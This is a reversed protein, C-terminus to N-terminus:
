LQGVTEVKLIAKKEIDGQQISQNFIEQGFKFVRYFQIWTKKSFYDCNARLVFLNHTHHCGEQDPRHDPQSTTICTVILDNPGPNNLVIFYKDKNSGNAFPFDYYLIVTGKM